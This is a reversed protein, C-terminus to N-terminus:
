PRKERVYKKTIKENDDVCGSQWNHQHYCARHILFIVVSTKTSSSVTKFFSKISNVSFSIIALTSFHWRRWPETSSWVISILLHETLVWETFFSKPACNSSWSLNSKECQSTIHFHLYSTVNTLLISRKCPATLSLIKIFASECNTKRQNPHTMASFKIM